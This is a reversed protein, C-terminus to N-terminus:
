KLIIKMAETRGDVTLIRLIYTGSSLNGRLIRNNQANTRSGYAKRGNLDYLEIFQINLGNVFFETDVPNPYVKFENIIESPTSLTEATLFESNDCELTVEYGNLYVEGYVTVKANRIDLNGDLYWDGEYFADMFNDEGCPNGLSWGGLSANISTTLNGDNIIFSNNSIDITFITSVNSEPIPSPEDTKVLSKLYFAGVILLFVISIVLYYENRKSNQEM